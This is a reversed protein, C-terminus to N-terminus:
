VTLQVNKRKDLLSHFDYNISHNDYDILHSDFTNIKKILNDNENHYNEFDSKIGNLIEETLGKNLTFLPYIYAETSVVTAHDNLRFSRPQRFLFDRTFSLPYITFTYASSKNEEDELTVMRENLIVPKTYLLSNNDIINRINSIYDYRVYSVDDNFPRSFTRGEGLFVNWALITTKNRKYFSKVKSRISFLNSDRVYFDFEEKNRVERGRLKLNGGIYLYFIFNKSVDSFVYSDSRGIVRHEDIIRSYVSNDRSIWGGNANSYFIGTIRRGFDTASVRRINGYSIDQRNFRLALTMVRLEARSIINGELGLNKNLIRPSIDYNDVRLFKYKVGGTPWDVGAITEGDEKFAM